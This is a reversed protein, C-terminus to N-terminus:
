KIPSAAKRRRRTVTPQKERAAAALLEAAHARGSDSHALGALMRTIEEIRQESHLVQIGSRTIAGADSKEIMVHHDAFAAVQPLHTVAVVQHNRGLAALRRGIEIAAAGGVGADVEDFIMTPVPNAGALVVEIALMVRSLEGGSAGRGLPRSTRGADSSIEISVVDIGSMSAAAALLTPAGDQQPRKHLQVSLTVSGMALQALELSIAEEFARAAATRLETLVVAGQAAAEAGQHCRRELDAIGEASDDMAMLSEHASKAWALVGALGKAGGYNRILDRIEVRRSMLTSLRDPDASVHESYALLDSALDAALIAVENAREAYDGLQKDYESGDVLARHVAAMAADVGGDREASAEDGVTLQAHAHQVATRLADANSLRDIQADLSSDEDPTPGIADIQAVGFRLLQRERIRVEDDRARDEREHELSQWSSFLQQYHLLAEDLNAGAFRDLLERQAAPKALQLQTSQGHVAVLREAITALLGAPVSRGGATARSRGSRNITRSLILSGDEDPAGGAELVTAMAANDPDIRIRGEIDALDLGSSIQATDAREGFLLLLSAVVMTKGAGTEGTLVTFGPRLPLTADAIVGLGRIRVEELM